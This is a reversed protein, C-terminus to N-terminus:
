WCDAHATPAELSKKKATVFNRLGRRLWTVVRPSKAGCRPVTAESFSVYKLESAQSEYIYWFVYQM